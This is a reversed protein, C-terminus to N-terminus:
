EPNAIVEIIDEAAVKVSVGLVKTDANDVTVAVTDLAEYTGGLTVKFKCVGNVFALDENVATNAAGADEANIAVTGATSTPDVIINKVANYFELVKGASTKLTVTVDMVYGDSDAVTVEVADTIDAVAISGSLSDEVVMLYDYFENPTYTHRKLYEPYRM